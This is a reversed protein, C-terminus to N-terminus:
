QSENVSGLSSGFRLWYAAIGFAVVVNLSDKRGLMPLCIVRDCIDVIAPDVGARENGVVLAIRSNIVHAPQRFVSVSRQGGELAWLSFGSKKMSRATALSNPHYTWSVNEEAGLATKSVKAQPPTPTIGCLHLGSIGAGDATRFISGVNYSSRINDLLVEIIPSGYSEQTPTPQRKGFPYGDSVTASGCRPCKHADDQDIDIPYRFDCDGNCCQRIEFSYRNVQEQWELWHIVPQKIM